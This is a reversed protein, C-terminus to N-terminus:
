KISMRFGVYIVRGMVPGWIMSADFYNGFPNKPDIIQNAQVFDFINEAGIYFDMQYKKGFSKSIQAGINIYAPSAAEFQYNV